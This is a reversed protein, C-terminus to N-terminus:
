LRQTGDFHVRVGLSVTQRLFSVDATSFQNAFLGYNLELDVPDALPRRLQVRLSNQNEDDEALFKTDTVSVGDNLQLTALVNATLKWPLAWTVQGFLRHRDINEFDGNSRQLRAVYGGRLLAPGVRARGGLEIQGELDRRPGASECLIGQQRQFEENECFLLLPEAEPDLELTGEVLANGRYRRHAFAGRVYVSVAKDFRYSVRLSTRPGWYDFRGENYFRFSMLEAGLSIRLVDTAQFGVQMTAIGLNYDRLEARIRSSKFWGSLGLDFGAGLRHASGLTLNHTILDETDKTFFRKAGLVYGSYVQHNKGVQLNGQVDFLLRLLGDAVKENPRSADLFVSQLDGSVARRANTDLEAGSSAQVQAWLSGWSPAQEDLAGVDPGAALALLLLASAM